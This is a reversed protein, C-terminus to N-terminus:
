SYLLRILLVVTSEEKHTKRKTYLLILPAWLAAAAEIEDKKNCGTTYVEVLTVINVQTCSHILDQVHGNVSDPLHGLLEASTVDEIDNEL